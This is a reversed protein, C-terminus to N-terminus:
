CQHDEYPRKNLDIILSDVGRRIFTFGGGMCRIIALTQIRLLPPRLMSHANLFAFRSRAKISGM